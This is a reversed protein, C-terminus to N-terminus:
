QPWTSEASKTKERASSLATNKVKWFPIVRVRLHETAKAIVEATIREGNRLANTIQAHNPRPVESIKRRMRFGPGKKKKAHTSNGVTRQSRVQPCLIRASVKYKKARARPRLICVSRVVAVRKKAHKESGAYPELVYLRKNHGRPILM